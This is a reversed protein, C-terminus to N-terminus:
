IADDKLRARLHHYAERVLKWTYSVSLGLELAAEALTKEGMRHMEFAARTQAPLEELAQEVIALRQRDYVVAEPSPASDAVRALDEDSVDVHPAIRSRRVLDVSLNRAIQHLYARPNSRDDPTATLVRVFTDQTLDAATEPNHGRRRLFRDIESAHQLFLRQVDWIM